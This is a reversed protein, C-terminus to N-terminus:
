LDDRSFYRRVFYRLVVTEESEQIDKGQPLPMREYYWFYLDVFKEVQRFVVKAFYHKEGPGYRAGDFAGKSTVPAANGHDAEFHRMCM